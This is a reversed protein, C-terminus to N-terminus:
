AAGCGPAEEESLGLRRLEEEARRPDSHCVYDDVFLFRGPVVTSRGSHVFAAPYLLWTPRHWRPLVKRLWADLHRFSRLEDVKRLLWRATDADLYYAFTGNLACRDPDIAHLGPVLDLADCLARRDGARQGRDLRTPHCVIGALYTFGPLAEPLLAGPKLLVDDECIVAGAGAGGGDGDDAALRRWLRVHSHFCASILDCTAPLAKKYACRGDFRARWLRPLTAPTTAPWVEHRFNLRARRRAGEDDDCSIVFVAHRQM